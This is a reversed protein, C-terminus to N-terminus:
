VNQVEIKEKKKFVIGYERGIKLNGLKCFLTIKDNIVILLM